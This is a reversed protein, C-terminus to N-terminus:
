GGVFERKVRVRRFGLSEYLTIAASNHADAYVLGRVAGRERTLHWLGQLTLARGLGRGAADPRVAVSYIEGLGDDHPKTLCLGVPRGREWALFVGGPDFWRRSMREELAERDWGGSDPHGAFAENSVLLYAPEDREPRFPVIRAEGVAPVPVAPPLRCEFRVVSRSEALGAAVAADATPVDGAWLRVPGAAAEVAGRVLEELVQARAAPEVAVEIVTSEGAERLHAYGGVAGGILVLVGPHRPGRELDLRPEESLTPYGDAAAVAALMAEIEDRDAPFEAPRLVPRVM